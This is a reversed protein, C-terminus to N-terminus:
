RCFEGGIGNQANFEMRVSEACKEMEPFFNAKCPIMPRAKFDLDITRLNVADCFFRPGRLVAMVAKRIDAVVRRNISDDKCRQSLQEDLCSKLTTLAPRNRVLHLDFIM